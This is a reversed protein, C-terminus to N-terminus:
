KKRNFDTWLSSIQERRLFFIGNAMNRLLLLVCGVAGTHRIKM